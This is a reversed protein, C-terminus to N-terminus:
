STKCAAKIAFITEDLPAYAGVTVQNGMEKTVRVRLSDRLMVKPANQLISTLIQNTESDNEKFSYRTEMKGQVQKKTLSRDIVGAIDSNKVGGYYKALKVFNNMFGDNTVRSAWYSGVVNNPQTLDMTEVGQFAESEPHLFKLLALGAYYKFEFARNLSATERVFYPPIIPSGNAFIFIPRDPITFANFELSSIGAPLKLPEKYMFKFDPASMKQGRIEIPDGCPITKIGSGKVTLSVFQEKNYPELYNQCEPTDIKEKKAGCFRVFDSSSYLTTGKGVEELSPVKVSLVRDGILDAYVEQLIKAVTQARALALSGKTEFGKPNTIKSEGANIQAIFSSQDLGKMFEIVKAKDKEIANKITGDVDEYRGIQFYKGYDPLNLESTKSAQESVIRRIIDELDSETLRVVKKM